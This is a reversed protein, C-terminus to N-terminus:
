VASGCYDCSHPQGKTKIGRAGCGSCNFAETEVPTGNQRSGQSVTQASTKHGGIIIENSKLDITANAFFKKSIMKQLDNRVFDVSQLTSAAINDLSTMQGGSILAVYKKFRKIRRKIKSGKVIAFVAIALFVLTIVIGESDSEQMSGLLMIVGLVGLAYGIISAIKGFVASAVVAAKSTNM